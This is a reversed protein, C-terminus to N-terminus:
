RKRDNIEEETALRWEPYDPSHVRESVENRRWRYSGRPMSRAAQIISEYYRGKIVVPKSRM